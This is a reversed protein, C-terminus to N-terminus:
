APKRRNVLTITSIDPSDEGQKFKLHWKGETCHIIVHWFKHGDARHTQNLGDLQSEIFDIPFLAIQDPSGCGFAAYGSGNAPTVLDKEEYDRGTL